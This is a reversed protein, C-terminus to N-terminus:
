SAIAFSYFHTIRSYILSIAARLQEIYAQSVLLSSVCVCVCMSLFLSAYINLVITLFLLQRVKRRPADQPPPGFLSSFQLRDIWRESSCAM